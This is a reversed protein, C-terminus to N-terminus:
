LFFFLIKKDIKKRRGKLILFVNNEMKNGNLSRQYSFLIATKSVFKKM